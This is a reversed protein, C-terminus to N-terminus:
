GHSRPEWLRMVEAGLLEVARDALADASLDVRLGPATAVVGGGDPEELVPSGTSPQDTGPRDTGDQERSPPRAPPPETTGSLGADTEAWALARALETLREILRPYCPDTRLDRVGERVRRRLEAYAEAQARLVVARAERRAQAREAAALSEAEARGAEHAEAEIRVAQRRAESLTAEAAREEADRVGRAHEEARGLLAGTM